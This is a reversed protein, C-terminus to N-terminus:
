RIRLIALFGPNLDLAAQIIKTGRAHGHTDVIYIETSDIGQLRALLHDCSDSPSLKKIFKTCEAKGKPSAWHTIKKEAKSYLYINADLSLSFVDIPGNNTITLKPQRNDVLIEKGDIHFPFELNSIISPEIHQHALHENLITQRRCYYVSLISVVLALLGLLNSWKKLREITKDFKRL